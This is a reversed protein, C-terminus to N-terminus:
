QGDQVGEAAAVALLAARCIALPLTAASATYCPIPGDHHDWGIDARWGADACDEFVWYFPEPEDEAQWRGRLAEVVQWAAEISTSYFPIGDWDGGVASHRVIPISVWQGGARPMEKLEVSLGFVREAIARDLERGAEMTEDNSSM